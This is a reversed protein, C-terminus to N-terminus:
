FDYEQSGKLITSILKESTPWGSLTDDHYVKFAEYGYKYTARMHSITRYLIIFSQNYLGLSLLLGGSLVPTIYAAGYVVHAILILIVQLGTLILFPKVELTIVEELKYRSSSWFTPNLTWSKGEVDKDMMKATHIYLYQRLYRLVFVILMCEYLFLIGGAFLSEIHNWFIVFYLGYIIIWSWIKYSKKIVYEEFLRM